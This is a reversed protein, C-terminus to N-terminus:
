QIWELALEHQLKILPIPKPRAYRATSGALVLWYTAAADPENLMFSACFM